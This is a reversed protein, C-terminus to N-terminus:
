ASDSIIARTLNEFHILLVNKNLVKLKLSNVLHGSKHTSTSAIRLATENAGDQVMRTPTHNRSEELQETLVLITTNRTQTRKRPDTKNIVVSKKRPFTITIKVGRLKLSDISPFDGVGPVKAIDLNYSTM